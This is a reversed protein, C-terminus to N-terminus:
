NPYWASLVGLVSVLRQRADELRGAIWWVRQCSRGRGARRYRASKHSLDKYTNGIPIQGRFVGRQIAKKAQEANSFLGPYLAAADAPRDVALGALLMMQMLDPRVSDWRIACYHVMPLAVDALVRVELSNAKTRNVARGRGIAQIVEDDCVAARMLEAKPDEHEIVLVARRSGDRM